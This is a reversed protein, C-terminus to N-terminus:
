PWGELGAKGTSPARMPTQAHAASAGSTSPQPRLFVIRNGRSGRFLTPAMYGRPPAGFLGRMTKSRWCRRALSFPLMIRERRQCKEARRRGTGVQIGAEGLRQLLSNAAEVPFRIV